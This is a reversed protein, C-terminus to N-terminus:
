HKEDKTEKLWEALRIENTNGSKTATVVGREVFRSIIRHTRLRSLGSDKVIFKQLYTGNHSALVELVKREDPKSTRLLTSWNVKPNEALVRIPHTVENSPVTLNIQPYALYYVFGFVGVAAIGVLVLISPWILWPMAPMSTAYRGGMMQRMMDNMSVFGAQYTAVSWLIILLLSALSVGLIILFIGMRNM